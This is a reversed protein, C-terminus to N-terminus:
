SAPGAARRPLLRVCSAWFVPRGFHGAAISRLRTLLQLKVTLRLASRLRGLAGAKRRIALPEFEEVVSLQSM